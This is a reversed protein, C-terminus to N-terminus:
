TGIDIRVNDVYEPIVYRGGTACGIFVVIILLPLFIRFITKM